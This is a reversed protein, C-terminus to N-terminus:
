QAELLGASRNLLTGVDSGFIVIGDERWGRVIPERVAALEALQTTSRTVTQLPNGTWTEVKLSLDGLQETWPDLDEPQEDVVLLLDIDSSATSDGRALSGYVM